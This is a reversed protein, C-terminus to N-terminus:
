RLVEITRATMTGDKFEGVAIVKEDNKIKGFSTEVGSIIIGTAPTVTIIEGTKVNKMTFKNIGSDDNVVGYFARRITKAFPDTVLIRSSTLINNTGKVGMAVLYDGIALDTQKIQKNTNSRTDIFNANDATKIQQIDGSANKIQIVSDTIDTVTGIYAISTAGTAGSYQSSYILLLNANTENGDTDFASVEIQNIGGDLEVSSSISGSDSSNSIDDATEASVVVFVNQKTAGAVTVTSDTHVSLNDPKLLVIKFEGPHITQSTPSPTPSQTSNTSSPNSDKPHMNTNLRWVGFAILLGFGGGAIIALLIEKRM